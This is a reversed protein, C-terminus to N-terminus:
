CISECHSTTGRSIVAVTLILRVGLGAEVTTDGIGLDSDEIEAALTRTDVLERETDVQDGVLIFLQTGLGELSSTNAAVFVEDLRASLVREVHTDSGVREVDDADVFHQRTSSSISELSTHTTGPALRVARDSTDVDTLDDQTYAGTVGVASDGDLGEATGLVLEGAALLDDDGLVPTEGREAALLVHLLLSSALDHNVTSLNLEKAVVTFQLVVHPSEGSSELGRSLTKSQMHLKEKKTRLL